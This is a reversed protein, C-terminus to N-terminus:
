ENWWCELESRWTHRPGADAGDRWLFPHFEQDGALNSTSNVWGRDNNTIVYCCNTGGLSGMNTVTYHTPKNHHQPQDQATVPLAIALAAIVSLITILTVIMLKM